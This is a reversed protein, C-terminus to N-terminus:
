RRRLVGNTARGAVPGPERRQQSSDPRRDSDIDVDDMSHAKRSGIQGVERHVITSYNGQSSHRYVSFGRM